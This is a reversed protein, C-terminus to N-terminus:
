GAYRDKHFLDYHSPRLTLLTFLVIFMGSMASPGAVITAANITSGNVLREMSSSATGLLYWNIM